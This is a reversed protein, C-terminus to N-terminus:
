RPDPLHTFERMAIFRSRRRISRAARLCRMGSIMPLQPPAPASGCSWATAPMTRSIARSSANCKRRAIMWESCSLSQTRCCSRAPRTLASRCRSAASRRSSRDRSACRRCSPRRATGAHARRLRPPPAQLVSWRDQAMPRAAGRAGVHRGRRRPVRALHQFAAGGGRQRLTVVAQERRDIAQTDHEFRHIRDAQQM